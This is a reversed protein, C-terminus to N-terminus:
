LYSEPLTLGVLLSRLLSPSASATRSNSKIDVLNTPVPARIHSLDRGQVWRKLKEIKKAKEDKENKSCLIIKM